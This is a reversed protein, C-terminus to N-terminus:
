CVAKLHQLLEAGVDVPDPFPDIDVAQEWHRRAIGCAVAIVTSPDGPIGKPCHLFLLPLHGKPVEPVEFGLTVEPQWRAGTRCTVSISRFNM